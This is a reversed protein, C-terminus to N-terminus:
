KAYVSSDIYIERTICGCYKCRYQDEYKNERLYITNQKYMNKGCNPCLHGTPQFDYTVDWVICKDNSDCWSGYEVTGACGETAWNRDAGGSVAELEDLSLERGDQARKGTIEKWLKEAEEATIEQGDAKVLAALEEESQAALLKAKLDKTITIM